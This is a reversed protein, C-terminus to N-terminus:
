KNDNKFCSKLADMVTNKTARGKHRPIENAEPAGTKEPNSAPMIPPSTTDRTLLEWNLTLPGAAPSVAMEAAAM